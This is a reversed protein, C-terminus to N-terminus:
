TIKFLQRLLKQIQGWRNFSIFIHLCRTCHRTCVTISLLEAERYSSSLFALSTAWDHEVRQPGMSQLMGPEEMWPIKWALTSSHTAMGKELPDGRGLSQVRTGWVAPLRKVMSQWAFLSVAPKDGKFWTDWSPSPLLVPPPLVSFGQAWSGWLDRCPPLWM